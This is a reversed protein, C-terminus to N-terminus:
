HGSGPNGGHHSGSNGHGHSLNGHGHNGHSSHHPDPDVPDTAHPISVFGEFFAQDGSLTSTCTIKYDIEDGCLSEDRTYVVLDGTHEDFSRVIHDNEIELACTYPCDPTSVICSDILVQHRLPLYIIGDEDHPDISLTATLCPDDSAGIQSNAFIKAALAGELYAGVM